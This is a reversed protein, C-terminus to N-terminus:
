YNSAKDAGQVEGANHHELWANQLDSRTLRYGLQRATRLLEQRSHCQRLVQQLTPSCEADAVLRVLDSWSM